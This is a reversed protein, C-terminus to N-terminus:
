GEDDQSDLNQSDLYYMRVFTNGFMSGAEPEDMAFGVGAVYPTQKSDRDMAADLIYLKNTFENTHAAAIFDTISSYWSYAEGFEDVHM